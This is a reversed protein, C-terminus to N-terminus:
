SLFQLPFQMMAYFGCLRNQRSLRDDYVTTNVCDERSILIIPLLLVDDSDKSM